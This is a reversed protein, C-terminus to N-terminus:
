VKHFLLVNILCLYILADGKGQPFTHTVQDLNELM